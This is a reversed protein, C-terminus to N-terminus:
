EAKAPPVTLALGTIDTTQVMVPLQALGFKRLTDVVFFSKGEAQVTRRKTDRAGDISVIYKGQPVFDFEFEGDNVAVKRDFSTDDVGTLRVTGANIRHGDSRAEVTGAVTHLGQVPITVDVGGKEEGVGLEVAKADKWHLTDGLFASIKMQNGADDVFEEGMQYEIRKPGALTAKVSYKGEALGSVRYRGRDDTITGVQDFLFPSLTKVEKPPKADQTSKEDLELLTMTAGPVPTGDDYRVTGAIAGARELRIQVDAVTNASVLVTAVRQRVRDQVARDRSQLEKTSFVSIVNIYGPLVAYIYYEGPSVKDIRFAGDLDTASGPLRGVRETDGSANAPMVPMLLVKALRAAANTDACYVHGSISGTGNSSERSQAWVAVTSAGLVLAATVCRAAFM